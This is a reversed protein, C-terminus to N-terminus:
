LVYGFIINRNNASNLNSSGGNSHPIVQLSKKIAPITYIPYSSKLSTNDNKMLSRHSIVLIFTATLEAPNTKSFLLFELNMFTEKDIRISLSNRFTPKWRM